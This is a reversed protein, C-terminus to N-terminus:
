EHAYRPEERPCFPSKEGEGRTSIDTGFFKSNVFPPSTQLLLDM